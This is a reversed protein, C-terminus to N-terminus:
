IKKNKSKKWLTSGRSDTSTFFLFKALKIVLSVNPLNSNCKSTSTYNLFTFFLLKEAKKGLALFFECIVHLLPMQPSTHISVRSQCGQNIYKISVGDVDQNVPLQSHVLKKNTYIFQDVSLWRYVLQENVTLWFTSWSNM